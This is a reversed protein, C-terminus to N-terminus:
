VHIFCTYYVFPVLHEINCQSKKKLVCHMKSPMGNQRSFKEEMFCLIIIIYLLVTVYFKLLSLLHDLLQSNINGIGHVSVM